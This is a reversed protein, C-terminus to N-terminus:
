EEWKFAAVQCVAKRVRGIAADRTQAVSQPPGASFLPTAYYADVAWNVNQPAAGSAEIFPLLAATAAVVGQVTGDFSVVPGGSNGPQIPTTLQFLTALDGTGTTASVVGESYKPSSGLMQPVPFGITFVQDGIDVEGNTRLTLFDPTHAEAVLVALDNKSDVRSVTAATWEGGPFRIALVEAAEVM